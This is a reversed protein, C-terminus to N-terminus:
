PLRSQDASAAREHDCEPGPRAQRTRARIPQDHTDGAEETAAIGVLEVLCRLSSHPRHTAECDATSDQRVASVFVDDLSWGPPVMVVETGAVGNVSGAGTSRRSRTAAASVAFLKAASIRSSSAAARVRRLSRIGSPALTNVPALSVRRRDPMSSSMLLLPRYWAILDFVRAMSRAVSAWSMQRSIALGSTM